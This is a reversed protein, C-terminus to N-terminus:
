LHLALEMLGRLEDHTSVGPADIGSRELMVDIHHHKAYRLVEIFGPEHDATVRPQRQLRSYPIPQGHVYRDGFHMPWIKGFGIRDHLDRGGLPSENDNLHFLKVWSADGLRHLWDHIAASSSCNFSMTWLHATDICVGFDHSTFGAAAVGDIFYRLKEPTDFSVSKGPELRDIKVLGLIEFIVVCKFGSMLSRLQLVRIAAEVNEDGSKNELHIILGHFRYKNCINLQELIMKKAVGKSAGTACMHTLYNAHVYVRVQGNASQQVISDYQLHVDTTAHPSKVYIQVVRCGIAALARVQDGYSPDKAIHTGISM